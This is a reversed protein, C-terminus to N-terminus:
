YFARAFGVEMVRSAPFSLQGLLLQESILHRVVDADQYFRLRPRRRDGTLREATQCPRDHVAGAAPNNRIMRTPRTM